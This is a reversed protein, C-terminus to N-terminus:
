LLPGLLRASNELVRAALPRKVWDELYVDDSDEIYGVQLMRLLSAEDSDYVFLTVEFNLTFSRMDINTSGIMALDSDVTMTKSHLLGTRHHKIRVGAELLDIYHSRAAAGVIIGDLKKPMVLTVTVGRLAAAILADKTSEDPVFYPTTLILEEKASFITTIMAERMAAVTDNPGTPVVHVTCGDEPIPVEPLLEELKEGLREGSEIEWDRLFVVELAQAAPGVIRATADIWPGIKRWRSVGFSDDTLNQSGTYATWGDIVVIKRHNRLDMRAFVMRLPSVPLAAAVMVGAGRLRGPLGSKLFGKSGVADVLVRCAVGRAAARELAEVVREGAGTEMWIYFLMHVRERAADIDKIISEITHAADGLFAIQNSRLPPMGCVATAVNAVHKYPECEATWDQNGGRWFITARSILGKTLEDYRALRGRGLRVEGVIAYLLVGVFPVPLFMLLVWSLTASVPRRSMVVHGCLVLRLVLDATLLAGWVTM